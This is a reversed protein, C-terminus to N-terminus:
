WCSTRARGLGGRRGTAALRRLRGPLGPRHEAPGHRAGGAVGGALHGRRHAPRVAPRAVARRDRLARHHLRLQDRQHVAPRGAAPQDRHDPRRRPDCRRAVTRSQLTARRRTALAADATAGAGPCRPRLAPRYLPVARHRGDGPAPRRVVGGLDHRHDADPCRCAPSPKAHSARRPPSPGGSQWCAPTNSFVFATYSTDRM